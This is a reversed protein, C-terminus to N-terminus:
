RPMRTCGATCFIACPRWCTITCYTLEECGAPTTTAFEFTPLLTFSWTEAPGCGCGAVLTGSVVPSSPDVACFSRVLAPKETSVTSQGTLSGALSPTTTAWVGVPWAGFPEVITRYM